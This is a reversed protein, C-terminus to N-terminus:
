KAEIIGRQTALAIRARYRRMYERNRSKGEETGIGKLIRNGQTALRAQEEETMHRIEQDLREATQKDM